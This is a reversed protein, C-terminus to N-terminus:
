PAINLAAAIKAELNKEDGLKYGSQRFLVQGKEGLLYNTPTATVRYDKELSEQSAGVLVPVTLHRKIEWGAVLEEEDPLINIWVMSLGKDKYKDYIKQEEPLEVNCSPCKPFFFSVLTVKNAYDQLTKDTGDLTKMKFPKFQDAPPSNPRPLNLQSVAEEGDRKKPLRLTYGAMWVYNAFAADGEHTGNIKEPVSKTRDRILAKGVSFQLMSNGRTYIFGPTLNISFGPRRFGLDNGILNRAPVGEDRIALTLGLGHILPAPHSAGIELMYQDQIADFQTMGPTPAPPGNSTGGHSTYFNHYGGQTMVYNVNCYAITQNGLNQFAQAQMIMGWAGGGPQVSYDPAQQSQVTSGYTTIVNDTQRDDGTPALLSFGIQVNNTNAKASNPSRLWGQAGVSVDGIGATHLTAYQNELRRSANLFPLTGLLSFRPTLQYTVMLDEINTKSQVQTGLQQRYYQETPGSFHVHSYVHRYAITATTDGPQLYGGGEAGSSELGSRSIV